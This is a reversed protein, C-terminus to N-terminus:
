FWGWAINLLAFALVIIGAFYDEFRLKLSKMRTRGEGGRYCRSEMAIALEEAKRFVGVFLPVVLPIYSRIRQLFKGTGFEAGRAMQAKMIRDAEEFLTPIFRLSISMTMAIEHSPVRLFKFYKLLEEIGDTVAVPSTTFTLLNTLFVLLLLRLTIVTALNLGEKTVSIFSLKFIIEGPTFFIQFVFAFSLLFLVPKIGKILVKLPLRSLYFLFATLFIYPIFKVISNTLFLLVLLILVSVIKVRPDLRHIPSDVPIFTGVSFKGM